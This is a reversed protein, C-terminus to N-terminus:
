DFKRKLYTLLAKSFNVPYENSSIVPLSKESKCRESTVTLVILSCIILPFTLPFLGLLQYFIIKFKFPM